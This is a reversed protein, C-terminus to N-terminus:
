LNILNFKMYFQLVDKAPSPGDPGVVGFKEHLPLQFSCSIELKIEDNITLIPEVQADATIPIEIGLMSFTGKVQFAEIQGIKLPEDTCIVESFEFSAQPFLGMKLMKNQVQYDFDESGMTVNKIDVFFKGTANTMSKKDCLTMTGSLAKVEGAYNDVPSLFSFIMIPEDNNTTTEVQWKQPLHINATTQNNEDSPINSLIELGLEKWTKTKNASEVVGFADGIKSTNIQQKLETEISKGFMLFATEKHKWDAQAIPSSLQSFIPKVCNYPSFLEGKLYLQQDESLFPYINIYFNKSHKNTIHKNKLQFDTMGAALQQIGKKYFDSAEFSSPVQGELDTIKIIANIDAKGSKWVLLDKKEHGDNKQHALKSTRIFTKMRALDNYRGYYKSRGHRNQFYISPLTTIEKPLGEDASHIAYNIHITEALAQIDAIEETTLHPKKNDLFLILTEETQANLKSQSNFSLSLISILFVFKYSM